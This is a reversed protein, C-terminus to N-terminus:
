KWKIKADWDLAALFGKLILETNEKASRIAEPSKGAEEVRNQAESWAYNEAKTRNTDGPILPEIGQKKSDYIYSGGQDPSGHKVRAQLVTPTPLAITVTRKTKDIAEYSASRFDSALTCDGRLVLLVRTGGFEIPIPSIGITRPNTIDIIDVINIKLAVLGGMKEYSTIPPPSSKHPLGWVFYYGIAIAILVAAFWATRKYLANM